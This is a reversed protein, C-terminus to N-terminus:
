RPGSGHRGGELREIAEDCTFPGEIEDKFKLEDKPNFPLAIIRGKEFQLMETAVVAATKALKEDDYTNPGKEKEGNGLWCKDKTDWLGYKMKRRKKSM